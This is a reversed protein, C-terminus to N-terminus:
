KENNDDDDRKRWSWVKEEDGQLFTMAQDSSDLISFFGGSENHIEYLKAVRHLHIRMEDSPARTLM